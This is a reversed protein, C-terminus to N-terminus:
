ANRIFPSAMVHSDFFCFSTENDVMSDSYITKASAALSTVQSLFRSFSKPNTCGLGVTIKPSLLPDKAM